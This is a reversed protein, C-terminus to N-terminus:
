GGLLISAAPIARFGYGFVIVAPVAAVVVARPISLDHVTSTGYLYLGAGWAGCLVRVAPIPVGALVCPATAYAIVQVTESVGGRDPATPVLFVTQLAAALHLIAPAILVGVGAVFLVTLLPSLGTLEPYAFPGTEIMGRQALGVVLARSGEEVLVVTVVFLLGPAQDAPAIANRFFRRPRVLVEVWARVVALPGRDRGGEPDDVWQTV